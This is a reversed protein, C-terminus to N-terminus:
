YKRQERTIKGESSHLKFTQKSLYLCFFFGTLALPEVKLHISSPTCKLHQLCILSYLIDRPVEIIWFVGSLCCFGTHPFFPITNHTNVHIHPHTNHPEEEDRWVPLSSANPAYNIQIKDARKSPLCNETASYTHAQLRQKVEYRCLGELYM